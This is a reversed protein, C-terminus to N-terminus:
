AIRRAATTSSSSRRSLPDLLPHTGWPSLQAYSGTSPIYIRDFTPALLESITALAVGHGLNWNTFPRLATRFNTQVQVVGVGFDSAVAEV